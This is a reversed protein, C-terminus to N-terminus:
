KVLELYKEFYRKGFERSGKSDFHLGDGKISLGKASAVACKPISKAIDHFTENMVDIYDGHKWRNRNIDTSLEGLIVPLEEAGLQRRMETIMTIFREKYLASADKNSDSEGQHWIIGGFNSTRMALKTMFVAHDFLIEGPMWQLMKTGGDACPIMGTKVNFYKQHEDGFTAGLSVGSHFDGKTVARDTNVPESLVQWRGMRLMFLEKNIIPPVEDLDGRGAMNSQGIMLFSVIKNDTENIGDKIISM